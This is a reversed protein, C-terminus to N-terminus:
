NEIECRNFLILLAITVVAFFVCFVLMIATISGILLRLLLKLIRNM